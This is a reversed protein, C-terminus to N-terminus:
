ERAPRPGGAFLESAPRASILDNISLQQQPVSALNSYPPSPSPPLPQSFRPHDKGSYTAPSPASYIPQEQVGSTPPSTPSYSPHDQADFNTAPPPCTTSGPMQYSRHRDQILLPNPPDRDNPVLLPSTSSYSMTATTRFIESTPPSATRNVSGAPQPVATLTPSGPQNTYATTSPEYNTLDDEKPEDRQPMGRAVHDFGNPGWGVAPPAPTPRRRRLLIVLIIVGAVLIVLGGIVGGIIPGMSNHKVSLASTATPMPQTANASSLSTTPTVTTFPIYSFGALYSVNSPNSNIVTINHTQESLNINIANYFQCDAPINSSQTIATEWYEGDLYLDAPGGNTSLLFSVAIETGNFLISATSDVYSNLLVVGGCEDWYGADPNSVSDVLFSASLNVGYLSYVVLPSDMMINVAPNQQGQAITSWMLIPLLASLCNLLGGM